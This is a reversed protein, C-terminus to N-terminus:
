KCAKENDIIYMRLHCRVYLFNAVLSASIIGASSVLDWRTLYWQQLVTNIIWLSNNHNDYTNEKIMIWQSFTEGTLNILEAKIRFCEILWLFIINLSQIWLLGICQLGLKRSYYRVTVYKNVDASNWSNLKQLFVFVNNEEFLNSLELLSEKTWSLSNNKSRLKRVISVDLYWANGSRLEDSTKVQSFGTWLITTLEGRFVNGNRQKFSSGNEFSSRNGPQTVYQKKRFQSIAFRNSQAM